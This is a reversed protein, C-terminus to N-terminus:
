TIAELGASAAEKRPAPIDSDGSLWEVFTGSVHPLATATGRSAPTFAPSIPVSMRNVKVTKM